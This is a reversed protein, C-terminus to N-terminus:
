QNQQQYAELEEEAEIDLAEQMDEIEKELKEKLEGEAINRATRFAKLIQMNGWDPSSSIGDKWDRNLSKGDTTLMLESLIEFALEGARKHFFDQSEPTLKIADHGPILKLKDPHPSINTQLRIIEDNVPNTQITSMYIPSIIDPGYASDYMVEKGWINRRPPLTKSLGPTRAKIKDLISRTARMGEDVFTRNVQGIISPISSRAFDEIVKPGYQSPDRISDMFTAVGQMMTKNTMMYGMSAAMGAAIEWTEDETAAGSVQIDHIDGVMMFFTSMPEAGVYSYYEGGIKVSYPRWGNSMMIQRMVGDRPGGGTINGEAALMMGATTVSSGLAIRGRAMDADAGGKKLMAKTDGLFMGLVSHDSVYKVMNVPTKFFPIFWRMVPIRAAKGLTKGYKGLDAQLAVYKAVTEGQEVANAPPNILFDSIHEAFADPNKDLGKALGDRYALKYLEMRNAMVKWYADEFQLARTPARGMTFINGLINVAQGTTGSAGFAEASFAHDRQKHYDLKSGSLLGKTDTPDVWSRGALQWAERQITMAAFLSAQVEGWRVGDTAGTLGRRVSGLGAAIATTPVTAFTTIFTGVTNKFHTTPSSLLINIWAEYAANFFKKFKSLQQAARLRQSSGEPLMRYAEIASQLNEEGGFEDALATLDKNILKAGEEGQVTRAPVNFQGLARAIETQSGKIQAQLNGVLTLQRKFALKNATTGGDALKAIKDLKAAETVLLDRAALMTEALGMGEVDIIGGMKRNLIAKELKKPTMGLMDALQRQTEQTVVFRTEEAIRGKYRKSTAEIGAIISQEDPLNKANFDTLGGSILETRKPELLSTLVAATDKDTANFIRNIDQDSVKNYSSVVQQTQVDEAAQSLIPQNEVAPKPRLEQYLKNADKRNNFTQVPKNTKTDIVAYEKKNIREVKFPKADSDIIKTTTVDKVSEGAEIRKAKELRKTEAQEFLNGRSYKKGADTKLSGGIRNTIWEGSFFNSIAASGYVGLKGLQSNALDFEPPQEQTAPMLMDFPNEQVAETEMGTDEAPAIEQAELQNIAM